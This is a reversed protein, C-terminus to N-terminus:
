VCYSKCNGYFFKRKVLPINFSSNFNEDYETEIIANTFIEYELAVKFKFTCKRLKKKESNLISLVHQLM